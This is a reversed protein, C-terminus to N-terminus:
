WLGTIMLRAEATCHIGLHLHRYALSWMHPPIYGLHAHIYEPSWMHVNADSTQVSCERAVHKKKTVTQIFCLVRSFKQIAVLGFGKLWKNSFRGYLTAGDEPSHRWNCCSFCVERKFPYKMNTQIYIVDSHRVQVCLWRGGKLRPANTVAWPIVPAWSFNSKEARIDVTVGLM